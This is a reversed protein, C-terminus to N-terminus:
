ILSSHPSLARMVPAARQRRTEGGVCGDRVRGDRPRWMASAIGDGGTDSFGDRGGGGASDGGVGGDRVGVRGYSIVDDGIVQDLIGDGRIDSCGDGTTTSVPAPSSRM